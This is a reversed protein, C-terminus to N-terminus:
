YGIVIWDLTANITSGAYNGIDCTFSYTTKNLIRSTYPYSSSSVSVSSSNTSHGVWLISNPCTIPLTITKQAAHAWSSDTYAGWQIIMEVFSGSVKVPLRAYGNTSRYSTGFLALLKAPDVIKSATGAITEAQTAIEAIGAVSETASAVAASPNLVVFKTNAENRVIDYKQGAQLDGAVLATLSGAGDYKELAQAGVASINLTSATTNDAGIELTFRQSATYATISPSPSATYTDTGSSVGLNGYTNDQVQGLSISDTRATGVSLGTFKHSAMPINATIGTTGDKTICTSLGTAMGDMEADMRSATINIANTKDTAWNYLRVFTGSGNFAM